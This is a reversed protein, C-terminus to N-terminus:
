ICNQDSQLNELHSLKDRKLLRVIYNKFDNTRLLGIKTSEDAIAILYYPLKNDTIDGILSNEEIENDPKM